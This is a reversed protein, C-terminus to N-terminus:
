GNDIVRGTYHGRCAGATTSFGIDTIVVTNKAYKSHVTIVDGADLRPDARFEGTVTKRNVLLAKATEGVASAVEATEILPNDVTQVEGATAASVTITQNDGYSVEVAKLPKSLSYEPYSYSVDQTIEYDSLVENRPEIHIVADRDQYLVCNGAHAVLQLIESITYGDDNESFDVASNNLEDSIIYSIEEVIQSLQDLAAKAVTYLTGAKTGTYKVDGFAIADRATFSAEIGNSPTTWESLWFNGGQIWEINDGTRMGYRLKLKQRELLYREAGTPNDPNWKGDSNDLSFVLENKPLAASLLDVGQSNSFNLLDSKTYNTSIGVYANIARARRYPHSWKTVEITIRDYNEFGFWVLSKADKNGTILKQAVQETGNYVTVQFDEAWEDFVTSWTVTIGAIPVTHVSDFSIEMAPPVAYVSDVDCLTETVYGFDPLTENFYEFSGDLGWANWELSSYKRTDKESVDTLSEAESFFSEMTASALAQEQLGPESIDYSIDIFTEPLLLDRHATKWAETVIQM